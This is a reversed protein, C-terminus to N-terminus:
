LRIRRYNCDHGECLSFDISVSSVSISFSHFDALTCVQRNSGQVQQTYMLTQPSAGVQGASGGPGGSQGAAAAAAAAIQQQQQQQQNNAVTNSM